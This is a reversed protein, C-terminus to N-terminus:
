TYIMFIKLFSIKSKLNDGIIHKNQCGRNKNHNLLKQLYNLSNASIYYFYIMQNLIILLIKFEEFILKKFIM